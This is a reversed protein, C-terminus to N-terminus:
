SRSLANIAEDVSIVKIGMKPLLMDLMVDAFESHQEVPLKLVNERIIYVNYDLDFLRYITAM